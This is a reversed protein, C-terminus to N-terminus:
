RGVLGDIWDIMAQAQEPYRALWFAVAIPTLIMLWDRM